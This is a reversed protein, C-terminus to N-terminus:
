SISIKIKSHVQSKALLPNLIHKSNHVNLIRNITVKCLAINVTLNVFTCSFAPPNTTTKISSKASLQGGRKPHYFANIALNKLSMLPKKPQKVLVIHSKILTLNIASQHLMVAAHAIIKKKLLLAASRLAPAAVYSQRSAFAGPNFPTVNTNQTSIVRVNSVPVKVTKAVIQSFVTNASQSIKTASSQM